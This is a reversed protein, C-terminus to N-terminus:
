FYLEIKCVEHSWTKTNVFQVVYMYPSFHKLFFLQLLESCTDYNLKFFYLRKHSLSIENRSEGMSLFAHKRLAILINRKLVKTRVVGTKQPEFHHYFTRLIRGQVRPRDSNCHSIAPRISDHWPWPFLKRTTIVLLKNTSYSNYLVNLVHVLYPLTALFIKLYSQKFTNESKRTVIIPNAFFIPELKSAM